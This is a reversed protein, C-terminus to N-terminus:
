ARFFASETRPNKCSCVQYFARVQTKSSFKGESPQMSL